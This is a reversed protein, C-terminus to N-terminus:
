AVGWEAAREHVRWMILYGILDLRVDEGSATGRALRSLKDDLRVKIQEVEDADSFIRVPNLVSNGYADNKETLMGAVFECETRILDAVTPPDDFPNESHHNM